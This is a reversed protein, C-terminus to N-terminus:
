FIFMAVTSKFVLKLVFSYILKDKIKLTFNLNKFIAFPVVLGGFPGLVVPFGEPGPLPFLEGVGGGGFGFPFYNNVFGM